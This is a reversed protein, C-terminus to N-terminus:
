DPQSIQDSRLHARRLTDQYINTAIVFWKFHRKATPKWLPLSLATACVVILVVIATKKMAEGRSLRARLKMAQVAHATLSRGYRPITWRAIEPMACSVASRPSIAGA